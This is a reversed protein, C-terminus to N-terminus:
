AFSFSEFVPFVFRENDVRPELMVSNTRYDAIFAWHALASIWCKLRHVGRFEEEGVLVHIGRDYDNVDGSGLHHGLIDEKVWYLEFYGFPKGDWCGIVPFSHRSELNSKLFKEQESIPGKCGWFKAVRDSNMWKHLLQLDSMQMTDSVGETVPASTPARASSSNPQPGTSRDPLSLLNPGHDALLPTESTPGNYAVAEAHMSAVRFSLYQGVSPVYRLYFTEGQRPPKPRVPHRIGDTMTFQPPPPPYYTPLHSGSAFPGPTQPSWLGNTRASREDRDSIAAPHIQGADMAGRSPSSPRSGYPSALGSLIGGSTPTLTFLFLRASMQWFSRRSSFMQSWGAPGNEDVSTGVSSEQSAVLGMRELKALLHRGRFVGERKINIKWEGRPKGMEATNKSAETTLYPSPEPQHYYWYLTAWLMMAILRTPSTPAKFDSDSPKSISSIFLNDNHLTPKTYRHIHHRRSEDGEAADDAPTPVDHEDSFDETQLVITWGPPFIGQHHSHVDNSRFYLGGFVPTVTLIQGNPLHVIQSQKSM